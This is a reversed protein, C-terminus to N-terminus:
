LPSVVVLALGGQVTAVGAGAQSFEEAPPPLEEVVRESLSYRPNPRNKHVLLAVNNSEWAAM